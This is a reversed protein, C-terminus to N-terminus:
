DAHHSWKTQTISCVRALGVGVMLIGVPMLILSFLVLWLRMEPEYIGRNRRALWTISKDSIFGGVIFGPVGGIFPAINMLGVDAPSFNYPPLPLYTAQMTTLIAFSTLVTGYTIAAYAIAPFTFTVIFPQYFHHWVSGKSYTILALRQRYSKPTISRDVGSHTRIERVLETNGSDKAPGQTKDDVALDKSQVSGLSTTMGHGDMLPIYKSEEFFFIVLLLNISLFIVCYWWMWRWGQSVTIYGSAVPGLFAGVAVCVLYLGTMTAHQHVFFIDAITIQVITESIAGSLGSLINSGLLDSNTETVAYWVVSGLQVISSFLYLPRRGYKHVFPLFLICGIALGGYNLAAGMNMQGDTFGLEDQMPDWATYGIDLQVFTWLVYFCLLTMNVAKRTTSWNLPDNPDSSPTPHLVVENGSEHEASWLDINMCHLVTVVQDRVAGLDCQARHGCRPTMTLGAM